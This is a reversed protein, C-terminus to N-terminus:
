KDGMPRLIPKGDVIILRYVEVTGGPLDGPGPEDNFSSRYSLDYFGEPTRWQAKSYSDNIWASYKAGCDACDADAITFSADGNLTYAYPIGSLRVDGGCRACDTRCLNRSM